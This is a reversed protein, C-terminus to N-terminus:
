NGRIDPKKIDPTKDNWQKFRESPMGKNLSVIQNADDHRLFSLKINNRKVYELIHHGLYLMAKRRDSDPKLRLHQGINELLKIILKNRDVNGSHFQDLTADIIEVQGSRRALKGVYSLEKWQEKTMITSGDISVDSLIRNKSQIQEMIWEQPTKSQINENRMRADKIKVAIKEAYTGAEEPKFYILGHPKKQFATANGHILATIVMSACNIKNSALQFNGITGNSTNVCSILKCWTIMAELNLGANGNENQGPLMIIRDPVKGVKDGGDFPIFYQGLSKDPAWTKGTKENYKHGNIHARTEPKGVNVEVDESFRNITTAGKKTFKEGRKSDQQGRMAQPWWSLYAKENETTIALAAHGTSKGLPLWIIVEAPM